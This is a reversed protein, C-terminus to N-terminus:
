LILLTGESGRCFLCPDAPSQHFGLKEMTDVWLKFFARSSQTLGYITKLLKVCDTRPDGPLGEPLRMYIEIGELDGLLFATEVDFLWSDLGFIIKVVLLLRFTVDNIMPSYIQDFDSGGVQTFGKAVLRARFIGSRKIEFVWKHQVLRKDKPVNSVKFTKWVKRDEM